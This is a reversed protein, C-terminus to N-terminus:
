IRILVGAITILMLDEDGTVAKVSVVKGTKETLNATLVGKGGRNIRRYEAEDTQKGYGKSTVHLIKTGPELIDMSIVEDNERLSIGKVGAATRGMQRIQEEEFRILSGNATAIMIDQNGDTRRVSILEDNDRLNVAILGGKRINKFLSLSTRKTIGYKTTFVLNEEENYEDVAIVTNISEDSDIQLVNIIPLGKATRSFEPIEYGKLKYVRGKNTFFLITDHTSCSVLQEVFDDENTGMGQVGRGGRKQTRYTSAPLRKIYGHHTLTLVINEEPILDEDEFFGIGGAVIDTRRPNSFRDRIEQLEERIIELVKEEDALIAKLEAILEMLENYENEIKERELGTLRQLRMDLIAQAQKESLDFNTMLGDRAIDTTESNRILTIVADLNDLAIRLGELIHA